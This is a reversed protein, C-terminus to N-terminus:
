AGSGPREIRWPPDQRFPTRFKKKLVGREELHIFCERLCSKGCLCAGFISVGGYTSEAIRKVQM